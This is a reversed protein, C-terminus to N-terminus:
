LLTTIMRNGSDYEYKLDKIRKNPYKQQVAHHMFGVIMDAMLNKYGCIIIFYSEEEPTLVLTIGKGYPSSSTEVIKNGMDRLDLVRINLYEGNVTAM